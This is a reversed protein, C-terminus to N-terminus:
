VQEEDYTVSVLYLGHAPATTAARSREGARLAEVFQEVTWEGAGVEKLTGVISRVMRYLFANGVITFILFENWRRWDARFLKRVTSEGQTPQGFTAFNHVGVLSTAARNMAAVDLPQQVHWSYFRRLPSRVPENYVLYEYTRRCADYRPHFYADVEALSAVVIDAALNANIARQLTETGHRWALDFTVVQGRAHVGSDTRGAGTVGVPHAAINGLARELEGQITPQSAVQRQFGCYNGGDYEVTARYRAM